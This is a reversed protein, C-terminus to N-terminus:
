PLVHALWYGPVSALPWRRAVAALTLATAPRAIFVLAGPECAAILTDLCEECFDMGPGIYVQSFWGPPLPPLPPAVSLWGLEDGGAGVMLWRSVPWFDIVM